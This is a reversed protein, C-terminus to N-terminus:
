LDWFITFMGLLHEITQVEQGSITFSDSTIISPTSHSKYVLKKENEFNKYIKNLNSKSLIKTPQESEMTAPPIYDDNYLKKCNSDELNNPSFLTQSCKCKKPTSDKQNKTITPPCTCKDTKGLFLKKM